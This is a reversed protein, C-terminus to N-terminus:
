ELASSACNATSELGYRIVGTEDTLFHRVGTKGQEIPDAYIEYHQVRGNEGREKPVFTFRYGSKLGSALTPDIAWQGNVNWFDVSLSKLDLPFGQSTHTEQYHRAASNLTRLSGVASSENAALHNGHHLPSIVVLFLIAFFELYGSAIAAIAKARLFKNRHEPLSKYERLSHHGTLCALIPCSVVLAIIPAVSQGPLYPGAGLILSIVLLPPIAAFFVSLNATRNM